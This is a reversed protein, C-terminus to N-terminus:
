NDDYTRSLWWMSEPYSNWFEHDDCTFINAGYSLLSGLRSDEFVERYSTQRSLGDQYVRHEQFMEM